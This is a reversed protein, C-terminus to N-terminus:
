RFRQNGARACMETKAMEAREWGPIGARIRQPMLIKAASPSDPHRSTDDHRFCAADIEHAHCPTRPEGGEIAGDQPPRTAGRQYCTPRNVALDQIGERVVPGLEPCRSVQLIRSPSHCGTSGSQVQPLSLGPIAIGGLRKRLCKTYKSVISCEGRQWYPYGNGVHFPAEFEWRM